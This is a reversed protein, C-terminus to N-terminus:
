VRCDQLIEEANDMVFNGVTELEECSEFRDETKKIIEEISLEPAMKIYDLLYHLYWAKVYECGKQRVFVVQLYKPIKMIASFDHVRLLRMIIEVGERECFEMFEQTKEPFDSLFNVSSSIEEPIGLRQAWKIHIAWEPM